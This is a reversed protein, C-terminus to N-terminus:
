HDWHILYAKVGLHFMASSTEVLIRGSPEGIRRKNEDAFFLEMSEIDDLKLGGIVAMAVGGPDLQALVRLYMSKEVMIRKEGM